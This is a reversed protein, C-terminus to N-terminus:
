IDGKFANMISELIWQTYEVTDSKLKIPIHPNLISDITINDYSIHLKLVYGGFLRRKTYISVTYTDLIDGDDYGKPTINFVSNSLILKFGGNILKFDLAELEKNVNIIM